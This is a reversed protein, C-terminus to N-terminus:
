FHKGNPLGTTTDEMIPAVRNPKSPYVCIFVGLLAVLVAFVSFGILGGCAVTMLRVILQKYVEIEGPSITSSRECWFVPLPQEVVSINRRHSIATERHIGVSWELTLRRDWVRGTVPEITVHSTGANYPVGVWLMFGAVGSVDQLGRSVLYVDSASLTETDLQYRYVTVGKITLSANIVFDVPRLLDEIFISLTPSPSTCTRCARLSSCSTVFDTFSELSPQKIPGKLLGDPTSWYGNYAQVKMNNNMDKQQLCTAMTWEADVQDPGQAWKSHLLGARHQPAIVEDGPVDFGLALQSQSRTIVLQLERAALVKETVAGSVHLLFDHLVNKYAALVDDSSGTLNLCADEGAPCFARQLIDRAQSSLNVEPCKQFLYIVGCDLPSLTKLKTHGSSCIESAWQQCSAQLTVNPLTLAKGGLLTANAFVRYLATVEAFSFPQSRKDREVASRYSSNSSAFWSGFSFNALPPTQVSTSPDYSGLITINSNYSVVGEDRSILGYLGLYHLIYLTVDSWVLTQEDGALGITQLYWPSIITLNDDEACARCEDLTAEADFVFKHRVRYSVEVIAFTVDYKIETDTYVYPGKQEFKPKGAGYLFEQVNALTWYYARVKRSWQTGQTWSDYSDQDPRVVCQNEKNHDNVYKPFELGMILGVALILVGVLVIGVGLIHTSVTRGRSESGYSTES